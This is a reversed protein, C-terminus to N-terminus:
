NRKIRQVGNPLLLYNYERGVRIQKWEQKKTEDFGEIQFANYFQTSYSYVGVDDFYIIQDKRIQFDAINKISLIKIFQGLNDFMLIGDNPSNVFVFNNDEIIKIPEIQDLYLSNLNLSEGFVEGVENIKKLQFTTPDYIWIKNDNSIGVANIDTYGFDKLDIRSRESLTNDLNKVIDYDDYFILIKQPNNIDISSINGLRDNEYQYKKDNQCDLLNLKNEFVWYLNGLKDIEFFDIPENLLLTSDIEIENLLNQESFLTKTGQTTCQIFISSLLLLKWINM